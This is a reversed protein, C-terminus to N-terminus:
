KTHELPVVEALNCVAAIHEPGLRPDGAALRVAHLHHWFKGAVHILGSIPHRAIGNMNPQKGGNGVPREPVSDMLSRADIWGLVHGSMPDIRAICMSGEERQEGRHPNLVSVSPAGEIGFESMNQPGWSDINGWLEGDVLELESVVSVRQGISSNTPLRPDIIPLRRRVLFSIPDLHLLESGSPGAVSMFLTEGDSSSEIGYGFGGLAVPFADIRKLTSTNYILILNERYTTVLLRDGMITMGILGAPLANGDGHLSYQSLGVRGLQWEVDHATWMRNERVSRGSEVDAERISDYNSEFLRGDASFKLGEVVIEAHPFSSVIEFTSIYPDAAANSPELSRTVASTM